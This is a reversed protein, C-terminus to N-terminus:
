KDMQSQQLRTLFGLSEANSRVFELDEDSVAAGDEDLASPPLPVVFSHQPM